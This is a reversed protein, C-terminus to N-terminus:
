GPVKFSELEDTYRETRVGNSDYYEEVSKVWKKVAPVYWFAKYTRGSVIGAGSRNTQMVTTAGQADVRAATVGSVSPAVAAAWEGDAEIKLAHFAGAPVTVDEWGAVKYVTHIHESTHRRNPHNETYDIEWTKGISLPFSLPKNVVTQHGNVSRVRSWDAGVLRETPPMVSGAPKDDIAIQKSGAREVTSEVRTQHWGSKNEVTSRYTWTDNEGLRPAGIPQAAPAHSAIFLGVLALCTARM